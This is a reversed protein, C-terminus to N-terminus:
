KKNIEQIVTEMKVIHAMLAFAIGAACLIVRLHVVGVNVYVEQIVIIHLVACRTILFVNTLGVVNDMAAAKVVAVNQDLQVAIHDVAFPKRLVVDAKNAVIM